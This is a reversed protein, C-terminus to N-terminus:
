QGMQQTLSAELRIAGFAHAAELLRARLLLRKAQLQVGVQLGPLEELAAQRLLEVVELVQQNGRGLSEAVWCCM